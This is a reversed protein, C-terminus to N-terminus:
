AVELAGGAGTGDTKRAVGNLDWTLAQNDNGAPIAPYGTVPRLDGGALNVWTVAQARACRRGFYDPPFQDPNIMSVVDDFGVGYRKPWGKTIMSAGTNGENAGTFVDDKIAVWGCITRRFAFNVYSSQQAPDVTPIVAPDNHINIRGANTAAGSAPVSTIYDFYVNSFQVDVHDGLSILPSGSKVPFLCQVVAVDVTSAPSGAAVVGMLSGAGNWNDVRVNHAILNSTALNVTGLGICASTVITADMTTSLIVNAAVDTNTTLGRLLHPRLNTSSNNYGRAGYTNVTAEGDTAIVGAVGSLWTTSSALNNRLKVNNHWLWLGNGGSVFGQFGTAIVLNLNKVQLYAFTGAGNNFIQKYTTTSTQVIVNNYPDPDDPDGELIFWADPATKTAGTPVTSNWTHTGAMYRIHCNSVNGGAAAFMATMAATDTAFPSAKATAATTSVVGTGDNGSTSVYAYRETITGARHVQPALTTLSPFTGASTDRVAAADGIWPMAEFTFTVNANGNAPFDTAANFTAGFVPLNDGYKASKAYTATKTVPSGTTPTGTIKVCAVPTKNQGFSQFAVVELALDGSFVQKPADAWHAIVKPYAVASASTINTTLTKTTSAGYAGALFNVEVITDGAYIYESVPMTIKADGGNAAETPLAHNPYAQLQSRTLVVIRQIVTPNGSADYGPSNVVVQVKATGDPTLSYVQGTLLSKFTTESQWGNALLAFAIPDGTVPAPAGTSGKLRVAPLAFALASKM